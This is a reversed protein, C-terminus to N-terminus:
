ICSQHSSINAWKKPTCRRIHTGHTNNAMQKRLARTARSTVRRRQCSEAARWTAPACEFLDSECYTCTLTNNKRAILELVGAVVEAIGGCRDPFTLTLWLSEVLMRYKLRFSM